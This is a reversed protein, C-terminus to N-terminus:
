SAFVGLAAPGALVAAALLGAMVDDMMVGFGGRFAREAWRVPGPKWIDFGRFAVFGTVLGLVSTSAGEGAVGAALPALAVLQGVVEDIVIRGDDKRGFVREAADSAWTGLAFLGLVLLGLVLLAPGGSGAGGPGAPLSSLVFVLVALAAAFTGPAWPAFGVGGVTAVAVAVRALAPPSPQSAAIAIGSPVSSSPAAGRHPLRASPFSPVM